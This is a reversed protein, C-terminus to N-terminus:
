EDDDDWEDDDDIITDCNPCQYVRNDLMDELSTADPHPESLTTYGCQGCEPGERSTM